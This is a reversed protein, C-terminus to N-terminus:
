VNAAEKTVLDAIQAELKQIAKNVDRVYELEMDPTVPADAYVTINPSPLLPLTIPDLPIIQPDDLKYLLTKNGCVSAIDQATEGSGISAYADSWAAMIHTFGYADDTAVRPPLADSMVTRPVYNHVADPSISTFYRLTSSSTDQKWSAADSPLVKVGVRKTLTVAGTADIHLEDRTGDPLSCLTNGKLDISTITINPPEYDTADSGLELQLNRVHLQIGSTAGDQIGIMFSGNLEADLTFSFSIRQKATTVTPAAAGHSQLIVNGEESEMIYNYALTVSKNAYAEFSVTYTEPMFRIKNKKYWIGIAQGASNEARVWGDGENYLQTGAWTSLDDFEQSIGFLNNGATVVRAVSEAGPMVWPRAKSGKNLMVKYTGSVTIGPQVMLRAQLKTTGSPITFSRQLTTGSVLALSSDGPTQINQDNYGVVMFGWSGDGVMGECSLTLIEGEAVDLIYGSSMTYIIGQTANSGSLTITGDDNATATVGSSTGSPNVWLNKEDERLQGVSNLGPPCWYDDFDSDALLSVGDNPPVIGSEDDSADPYVSLTQPTRAAKAIEEPTAERLMVRYTGSATSGVTPVGIDCTYYAFTSPTTFVISKQPNFSGGINVVQGINNNNTNHCQMGFWRISTSVKDIYFAYSTNPRLTYIKGSSIRAPGEVTSTGSVTFSGSADSTVTVGHLTGSPTVWLNQRTKGYVKIGMPKAPWTDDAKLITGTLNGRLQNGSVGVDALIPQLATYANEAREASTDAANASSDANSAATNATNAAANATSAAQTAKTAADTASQAATDANEAAQNATEVSQEAKEVAALIKGLLSVDDSSVQGDFKGSEIVTMGMSEPRQTVVRVDGAENVGYVSVEVDGTREMVKAPIKTASGEYMVSYNGVANSFIAIPTIDDWEADLVLTFTDTAINNQILETNDISIVRESVTIVHNDPLGNVGDRSTLTKLRELESAKYWNSM